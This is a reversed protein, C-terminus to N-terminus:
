RTGKETNVEEEPDPYASEVATAWDTLTCVECVQTVAMLVFVIEKHLSYVVCRHGM